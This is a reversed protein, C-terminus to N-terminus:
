SGLPIGPFEGYRITMLGFFNGYIIKTFAAGKLALPVATVYIGFNYGGEAGGGDYCVGCSSDVGLLLWRSSGTHVALLPVPTVYIGFDYGGRCRCWWLVCWWV